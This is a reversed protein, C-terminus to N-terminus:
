TKGLENDQYIFYNELEEYGGIWLRGTPTDVWIQPLTHIGAKKMLRPMMPNAKYDHTEFITGREKLRAKARDCWECNEKTLVYFM